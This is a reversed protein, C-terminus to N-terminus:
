QILGRYFRDIRRLIESQDFRKVDALESEALQRALNPDDLLEHISHAFHAADGPACFRAHTSAEQISPLNSVVAPVGCAQAQLVAQPIGENANSPFLFVDMAWFIEEVMEVHGVFSIRREVGLNEAAHVMADRSPGDGAVVFHAKPVALVIKVFDFIGKWSRIVFVGGVVPRDEPLGYKKRMEMKKSPNPRFRSLDVGTAICQIKNGSIGLQTLMESIARSTTCIADPFWRYSLGNRIPTSLHRTRVIKPPRSLCRTALGIVWSDISSHTVILDAKRDSILKRVTYMSCIDLTRRFPVPEVPMRASKARVFLESREPAWLEVKWGFRTLEKLETFIRIEQGGWALSSETHVLLPQSGSMPMM